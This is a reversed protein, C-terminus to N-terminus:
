EIDFVCGFEDGYGGPVLGIAEYEEAGGEGDANGHSTMMDAVADQLQVNAGWGTARHEPRVYDLGMAAFIDQESACPIEGMKQVVVNRHDRQVELLAVDNLSYSNSDAYTFKPRTKVLMRDAYCRMSRNFHASGTFYLLAFPFARRPYLKMDIRRYINPNPVEDSLVRCIGMYMSRTPMTDDSYSIKSTPHTYSVTGEASSSNSMPKGQSAIGRILDRKSHKIVNNGSSSSDGTRVCVTDEGEMWVRDTSVGLATAISVLDIKGNFDVSQGTVVQGKSMKKVVAAIDSPNDKSAKDRGFGGGTLHGTLFGIYDLSLVLQTMFSGPLEAPADEQATILIDVDGCSSAGRRYSGVAMVRCEPNIRRACDKVTQEIIAVEDRPIRKQFDECHRLGQLQNDTLEVTGAAVAKRVDDVCNMGKEYLKKATTTGVGWIKEMDAVAVTCPDTVLGTLKDSRSATGLLVPLLHEFVSGAKNLKTFECFRILDGETELRGAYGGLADAWAKYQKIRHRNAAQPGSSSRSEMYPLIDKCEQALREQGTGYFGGPWRRKVGDNSTNSNSGRSNQSTPASGGADRVTEPDAACLFGKGERKKKKKNTNNNLSKNGGHDEASPGRKRTEADETKARIAEAADLSRVFHLSHLFSETSLLQGRESSQILWENTAVTVKPPITKWGKSAFPRLLSEISAIPDAVITGATLTPSVEHTLTVEWQHSKAKRKWMNLAGVSVKGTLHVYVCTSDIDDDESVPDRLTPAAARPSSEESSQSDLAMLSHINMKVVLFGIYQFIVDHLYLISLRQV